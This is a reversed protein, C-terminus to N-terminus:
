LISSFGNISAISFLILDIGISKITMYEMAERVTHFFFKATLISCDKNFVLKTENDSASMFEICIYIYIYIHYHISILRYFYRHLYESVYTTCYERRLLLLQNALKKLKIQEVLKHLSTMVDFCSPYIRKPLPEIKTCTLQFKYSQFDISKLIM